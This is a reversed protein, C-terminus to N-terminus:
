RRWFDSPDDQPRFGAAEVAAAAVSFGAAIRDPDHADSGFAVARGGEEAWWRLVEPGPCVCRELDRGGSTNVELVTGRRAAARLVDRIEEEYDRAEFGNRNPWYRKPYDLHALVEFPQGSELMARVQALYARFLRPSEAESMLGEVSADVLRGGEPICHVSGLLRDLPGVALIRATEEPFLHPEGLEVGSLIRLGPFSRRCREIAELYGEIDLHHYEPAPFPVWDAHETFAISPLGLELARRCSREMSGRAADWSWETHVHHDPM